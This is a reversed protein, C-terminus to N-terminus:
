ASATQAQEQKALYDKTLAEGLALFEITDADSVEEYDWGALKALRRRALEFRISGRPTLGGQVRDGTKNKFIAPQGRVAGDKRKTM